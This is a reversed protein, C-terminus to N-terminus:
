KVDKDVWGLIRMSSRQKSRLECKRVRKRLRILCRINKRSKIELMEQEREFDNLCM